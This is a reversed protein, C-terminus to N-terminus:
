ALCGAVVVVVVGLVVEVVGDVLVVNVGGALVDVVTAESVV